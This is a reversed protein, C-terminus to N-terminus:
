SRLAEIPDLRAARLAPYTGFLVGVVISFGVALSVILTYPIIMEGLQRSLLSAGGVTVLIGIVMGIGGGLLALLISEMLFQLAIDNRSAGVAKRIGIERTREAVSVLMINMIGIGAVLLAVGGIASLGTGIIGLVNEFTSLTNAANQQTYKARAGHVHQLAAVALDGVSGAANPDTAYIGLFDVPGPAIVDHYTTYAMGVSGSGALSNFFSGKIDAYVGVVACPTGNIRVTNGVAFGNGFLDHAVDQTLVCVRAASAVDAADIKRGESMVLADPQYAGVQFASIYDRKDGFSIRVTQQWQGIVEVALGGLANSVTQIDRYRIQAIEPYDQTADPLVLLPEQGFSNLTSAIGSTTARSIGFVTIISASGIIMGLMTL